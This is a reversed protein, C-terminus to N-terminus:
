RKKPTSIASKTKSKIYRDLKPAIEKYYRKELIMNISNGKTPDDKYLEFDPLSDLYESIQKYRATKQFNPYLKSYVKFKSKLAKVKKAYIECKEKDSLESEEYEKFMSEVLKETHFLVIYEIKEGKKSMLDEREVYEM